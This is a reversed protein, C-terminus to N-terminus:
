ESPERPPTLAEPPEEVVEEIVVENQITPAEPASPAEPAASEEVAMEEESLIPAEPEEPASPAEPKGPASPAEPILLEETITSTAGEDRLISAGGVMPEETYNEISFSYYEEDTFVSSLFDPLDKPYAKFVIEGECIAGSVLSSGLSPDPSFYIMFYNQGLIETVPIKFDRLLGDYSFGESHSQILLEDCGPPNEVDFVVDASYALPLSNEGAEVEIEFSSTGVSGGVEYDSFAVRGAEDNNESLRLDAIGAVFLNGISSENDSFYSRTGETPMVWTLLGLIIISTMIKQPRLGEVSNIRFQPRESLVPYAVRKRIGDIPSRRYSRIEIEPEEKRKSKRISKIERWIKLIEEIIISTAPLGVLLLFGLPKRGFDLLYGLYPLSFIVKGHVDKLKTVAPDEVDNADGKTVFSQTAGSGEVRLIRHTTPIQTKTDKGFTIVDGVGYQTAPRIVILGGTKISPEMSGSKVIKVGVNGPIPLLSAFLLIGVAFVAIALLYYATNWILKM